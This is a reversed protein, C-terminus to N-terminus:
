LGRVHDVNRKLQIEGRKIVVLDGKKSVISYPDPDYTSSLTNQKRQLLLM